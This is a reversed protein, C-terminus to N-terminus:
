FHKWIDYKQGAKCSVVVAGLFSSNPPYTSFNLININREKLYNQVEVDSLFSQIINFSSVIPSGADSLIKEPYGYEYVHIQFANIFSESDINKCILLNVARSWMCTIILIYVKVNVNNVKVSFPGIHDLAVERYFIEKPSIRFETYDNQNIKIVRGYLRKCILCSKLCKKVTVYASPIYFEKKLIALLKYIGAHKAKIHTEFILNKTFLCDKSLLIPFKENFNSKLKSFKSKVRILGDSDLFLNLQNALNSSKGALPNLLYDYTDAFNIQQARKFVLSCSDKYEFKMDMSPFLSPNKSKVKLKLIYIYKRVYHTVRCMKEISSFRNLAIVPELQNSSIVNVQFNFHINFPIEFAITEESQSLNPGKFYNTKQLVKHSVCRTVMDAPNNLGKVHHFVVKHTECLKIINNLKNNIITGKREVKSTKNVKAALWSLSIMSDTFLHLNHFKIPCFAGALNSYLDIVCEVGYSVAFLELVPITRGVGKTSVVKNKATVYHLEHTDLNKLYIVCGYFDKSADTFVLLDHTGNYNGIYRPISPEVGANYSKCIKKWERLRDSGLPVDWTISGDKQLGHLFLKARNRCPLALALPDFCSNVSSLISRLTNAEINLKVNKNTLLDKDKLWLIGLLKIESSEVSDEGFKSELESLNSGFQQLNFGFHSFINISKHFAKDIDFKYNSSYALNDMFSLNYLMNRLDNEFPDYISCHLILIINLAVMLLSPSFRMGFPLRNLKFAVESFDKIDKVWLFHLKLTDSYPLWIQHFAKVLDFILLFKNFRLLTLAIELKNNLNPGPLSIQNHSLADNTKECLNSMFVVRCKTSQVQERFVGMHGMFSVENNNKLKNLSVKEIIGSKLQEMFVKHYQEFKVPNKHLKKLTSKLINSALKYNNPLFNVVRKDWLCPLILRGDEHCEANNLVFKVLEKDEDSLSPECYDEYNMLKKLSM